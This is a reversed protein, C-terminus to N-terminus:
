RVSGEPLAEFRRRTEDSWGPILERAVTGPAALGGLLLLSCMWGLITNQPQRENLRRSEPKLSTM